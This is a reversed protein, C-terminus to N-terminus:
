GRPGKYVGDQGLPPLGRANGRAVQYPRHSKDRCQMIVFRDKRVFVKM